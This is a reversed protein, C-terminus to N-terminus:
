EARPRSGTAARSHARGARVFGTLVIVTGQMIFGGKLGTHVRLQQLYEKKLSLKNNLSPEPEARDTNTVKDM